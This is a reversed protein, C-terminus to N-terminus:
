GVLCYASASIKNIIQKIEMVTLLPTLEYAKMGLKMCMEDSHMPGNQLLNYVMLESNDLVAVDNKVIKENFDVKLDRLIDKYDMVLKAEGNAILANTGAARTRDLNGPIAFVDRNQSNACDATILAGSGDDAEVVLVGESLGSIIRNRAPFTYKTASVDPAYESVVLGRECVEDFLRRNCAPTFCNFGSGLVGITKGNESLVAKQAIGDIGMALGSVITFYKCLGKSFRKAVDEGYSTNRRTGVISFCRTKMLSIDGKYYLVIPPSVEKQMLCEPMKDVARTVVGINQMYLKNLSESIYEESRFQKLTKFKEREGLATSRLITDFNDWLEMPAYVDLIKNVATPSFNALSLWYYVKSANISM